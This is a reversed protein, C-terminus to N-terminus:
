PNASAQLPEALMVAPEARLRTLAAQVDGHDVSLVLGNSATPGDVIRVGSQRLIRAVDRQPANADFVVVLSGVARAPGPAALGHFEPAARMPQLVAWGLAFIASFQAAMALKVWGPMQGPRRSGQDPRRSAPALEELHPRLRALAADAEPLVDSDVYASQLVRLCELEARCAPCARLHQEVEVAEEGDLTGNVLWPLLEQTRQHSSKAFSLVRGTM